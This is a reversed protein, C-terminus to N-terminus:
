EDAKSPVSLEFSTYHRAEGRTSCRYWRDAAFADVYPVYPIYDATGIVRGSSNDSSSIDSAFM